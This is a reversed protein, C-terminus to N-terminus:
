VSLPLLVRANADEGGTQTAQNSEESVKTSENVWRPARRGRGGLHTYEEGNPGRHKEGKAPKYRETSAPSNKELKKPKQGIKQKLQKLFIKVDLGLESVDKVVSALLAEGYQEKKQRQKMEKQELSEKFKAREAEIEEIEKRLAQLEPNRSEPDMM